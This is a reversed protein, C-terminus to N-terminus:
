RVRGRLFRRRTRYIRPPQGARLHAMFIPASGSSFTGGTFWVTIGAEAAYGTYVASTTGSRLTIGMSLSSLDSPAVTTIGAPFTTSSGSSVSGGTTSGLPTNALDSGSHSGILYSLSVLTAAASGTTDSSWWADIAVKLGVITADSPIESPVPNPFGSITLANSSTQTDGTPLSVTAPTGTSGPAGSANSWVSGTGGSDIASTPTLGVMTSM